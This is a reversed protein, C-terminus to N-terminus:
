LYHEIASRSGGKDLICQFLRKQNGKSGTANYITSDNSITFSGGGEPDGKIDAVPYSDKYDVM